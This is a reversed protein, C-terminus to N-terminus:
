LRILLAAMLGAGVLLHQWFRRWTILTPVNYPSSNMRRKETHTAQRWQQYLRLQNAEELLRQQKDERHVTLLHVHNTVM